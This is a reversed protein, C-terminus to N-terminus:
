NTKPPDGPLNDMNLSIYIYINEEKQTNIVNGFLRLRLRLGHMIGKIASVGFIPITETLKSSITKTELQKFLVQLTM